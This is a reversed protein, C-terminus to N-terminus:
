RPSPYLDVLDKPISGASAIRGYMGVGKRAHRIKQPDKPDVGYMGLHFTMGHNWEYNDMLSWWFYGQVNAGEEAARKTWTLTRV